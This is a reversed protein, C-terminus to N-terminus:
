YNQSTKIQSFPTPGIFFLFLFLFHDSHKCLKLFTTTTIILTETEGGGSMAWTGEIEIGGAQGGGDNESGDEQSCSGLLVMLILLPITWKM